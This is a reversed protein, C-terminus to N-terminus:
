FGQILMLLRCGCELFSTLYKIMFSLLQGRELLAMQGIINIRVLTPRVCYM